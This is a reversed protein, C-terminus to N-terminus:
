NKLQSLIIIKSYKYDDVRDSSTVEIRFSTGRYLMNVYYREEKDGYTEFDVRIRDNDIQSAKVTGFKVPLSACTTTTSRVVNSGNWGTYTVKIWIRQNQNPQPVEFTFSTSTINRTTSYAGPGNVPNGNQDTITITAVTGPVVNTAQFKFKGNYWCVPTVTHAFTIVSVFLALILFTIKKM